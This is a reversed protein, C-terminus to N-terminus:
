HEMTYILGRFQTCLDTSGRSVEEPLTLDAVSDEYDLAQYLKEKEEETMLQELEPLLRVSM